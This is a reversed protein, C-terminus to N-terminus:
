FIEPFYFTLISNLRMDAIIVEQNRTNLAVGRPKLLTTGPGHLKWRPPVDGNDTIHWVGVFVGEPEQHERIGPMAAVLWGKPTIRIQIIRHIKTRPGAIVARPRANGSDARNFMAIGGSRPLPLIEAGVSLMDRAPDVAVTEVNRLRTNPGRIVRKPEVNGNAERDFVLIGGSSPVFLENHIPDVDIRQVNDLQTSPGQIVRLPPENGDAGGRFTLVAQAFPNAVTFEDHVADYKIDHMTRSLLTDQGYILRTPLTNEKALRAFAAIQPHAM